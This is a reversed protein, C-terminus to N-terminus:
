SERAIATPPENGTDLPKGVLYVVLVCAVAGIPLTIWPSVGWGAPLFGVVGAIGACVMAYPAQTRVHDIHDSACSMSSMITTDSIPSCHDGFVAGSLVAAVGRRVTEPDLALEETELAMAVNGAVLLEADGPTAARVTLEDTGRSM